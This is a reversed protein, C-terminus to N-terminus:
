SGNTLEQVSTALVVETVTGYGTLEIQWNKARVGSATRFISDDLVAMSRILVGDAYIKVTVGASLDGLVRCTSMSIPVPFTFIGSKWTFKLESTSSFLSIIQYINTSINKVLLYFKDTAKEYLADYIQYNSAIEIKKLYEPNRVDLVYGANTGIKFWYVKSDYEIAKLASPSHNAMWQAKTILHETVLKGTASDIMFYGDPSPYMVGLDTSLIGRKCLCAQPYRTLREFMMTSPDSGHLAYPVATTPIILSERFVGVGVIDDQTINGYALPYAYPVLAESVFIENDDTLALIGNSFQVLNGATAPPATWETSPITEYVNDTLGTPTLNDNGDYVPTSTDLIQAAPIDQVEATDLAGPRCGILMYDASSTGDAELRYLRLYQISNGQSTDPVVFNSLSLYQGGQVEIVASATNPASESGFEDVLTYVYSVTKVVTGSGTGHVTITLPATPAVVGLRRRTGAGELTYNTRKPYGDGTYFIHHDSDAMEAKVVDIIGSWALWRDEQKYITQYPGAGLNAVEVTINKIPSLSGRDLDANVCNASFGEPLYRDDIRPIMGRFRSIAIKPM